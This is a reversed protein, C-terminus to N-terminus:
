SIQIDVDATGLFRGLEHAEEHIRSTIPPPLPQFAEVEVRLRDGKRTHKWVAQARGNVLVVPSVWGQPRYIKSRHEGTVLHDRERHGLLYSDFYPLLCLPPTELEAQALREVDEQLVGGELGEVTVTAIGAQERAWIARAETLTLGSWWAFDRATAPACAHLYWRLLNGEAEEQAVDQWHPLWAAARVFTPERGRDPGYCIVGRAAALHLLSVVPYTLEGVPVSAVKRRSGWGGGHTADTQVGLTRSVREAIEPRTLPQDLADLAADIAAELTREPVGKGLAWNIEKQARRATGRVFTALDAAPILFLTRRMCAAKILSREDLAREVDALHLDGVRAWFSIQAASLLQAQAGIMDRAVSILAKAPARESLHHRSLRYATVQDWTLSYNKMLYGANIDPFPYSRFIARCTQWTIILNNDKRSIQPRQFL